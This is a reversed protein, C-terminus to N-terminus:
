PVVRDVNAAGVLYYLWVRVSCFLVLLSGGTLRNLCSGDVRRHKAIGSQRPTQRARAARDRRVASTRQREGKPPALWPRRSRQGDAVQELRRDDARHDALNDTTQETQQGPQSGPRGGRNTTRNAAKDSSPRSSLQSSAWSNRLPRCLACYLFVLQSLDVLTQFLLM